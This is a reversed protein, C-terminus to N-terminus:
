RGPRLWAPAPGITPHPAPPPSPAATDNRGGDRELKRLNLTLMRRSIGEITRELEDV